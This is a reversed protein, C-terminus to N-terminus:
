RLCQLDGRWSRARTAVVEIEQLGGWMSKSLCKECARGSRDLDKWILILRSILVSFDLFEVFMGSCGVGGMMRLPEQAQLARVQVEVWGARCM